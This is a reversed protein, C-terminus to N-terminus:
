LELPDPDSPLERVPEPEPETPVPTDRGERAVVELIGQHILYGLHPDRPLWASTGTLISRDALIVGRPYGDENATPRVKVRAM